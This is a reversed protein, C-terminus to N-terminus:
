PTSGRSNTNKWWEDDFPLHEYIWIPLNPLCRHHFWEGKEVRLRYTAVIRHIDRETDGRGECVALLRLTHPSGTQLKALRNVPNSSRGIKVAGTVDSQIIYLHRGPPIPEKM